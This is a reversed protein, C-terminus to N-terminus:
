RTGPSQNPKLIVKRIENDTFPITMRTPLIITNPQKNKYFMEKFVEATIKSQEAANTTLDNKGKILLKELSRLHKIKKVVEYTETNDNQM